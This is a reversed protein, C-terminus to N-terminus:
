FFQGPPDPSDEPFLNSSTPCPNTRFCVRGESVKLVKPHSSQKQLCKTKCQLMQLSLTQRRNRHSSVHLSTLLSKASSWKTFSRVNESIKGSTKGNGAATATQPALPWFLTLNWIPLWAATWTIFKLPLIDRLWMGEAYHQKRPSGIEWLGGCGNWKSGADMETDAWKCPVQFAEAM